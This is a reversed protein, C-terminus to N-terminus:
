FQQMFSIKQRRAKFIVFTSFDVESPKIAEANGTIEDIAFFQVHCGLVDNKSYSTRFKRGNLLQFAYM